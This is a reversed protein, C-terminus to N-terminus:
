VTRSKALRSRSSEIDKSQNFANEFDHGQSLDIDLDLSSRCAKIHIQSKIIVSPLTRSERSNVRFGQSFTAKSISALSSQDSDINSKVTDINNSTEIYSPLM